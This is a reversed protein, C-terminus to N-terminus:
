FGNRELLEAANRLFAEEVLMPSERRLRGLTRMAESGDLVLEAYGVERKQTAAYNEIRSASLVGDEKALRLLEADGAPPLKFNMAPRVTAADTEGLAASLLAAPVGKGMAAAYTATMGSLRPNVELVSWGGGSLVLDVQAVGWLGLADALRNMDGELTGPPALAPVLKVSQKPSTIGHKTLSLEAPPLVARRGGAGHIELGFQRGEEYEEVLRDSSNRRSLLFDRAEGFTGAVVTGFSSLGVTDKIVVPYRLSAVERLVHERYVNQCVSGKAHACWFLWHHVLVSRPTRIGLRRLLSKTRAKDFCDLASASPHAAARIGRSALIEAVMGDKVPLWDFPDAWGSAAVAIDPKLREVADAVAEAGAGGDGLIEYRVGDARECLEGSGDLDLLFQAPKEAVVAFTDGPRERALESLREARSPASMTSFKKPDFRNASTSYFVINM